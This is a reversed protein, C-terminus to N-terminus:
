ITAMNLSIQQMKGVADREYFRIYTATGDVMVADSVADMARVWNQDLSGDECTMPLKRLGLVRGTDIRGQKNVQFAHEVLARINANGGEAWEEICADILSKAAQLEPGFSIRENVSVEVEYIGDFSKLSINGKDGGIKAGYQEFLLAKAAYMEAMSAAKFAALAAQLSKASACLRRAVEDKMQDAPKVLSFPVIRGASDTWPQQNPPSPSLDNM